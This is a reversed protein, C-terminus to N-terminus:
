APALQVATRARIDRSSAGVCLELEGPEAVWNQAAVDWHAFARPGLTFSVRRSEGPALAVKAFARLEQEPRIVASRPRRVYVQVVEQGAREGRNAVELTLELSEDARLRERAARLDSYEFRGYSLGHGFAFRPELKRADYWRYGVFLGEGYVSRGGEGPWDLYAPTDEIRKPVTHPLRGSPNRDGFLVDALANGAEQGGYWVQLAAPVNELFELEVPAGTQIVVVTRPNVAAVCAALEAQRGPLALSARDHGETEWEDNMGLVVVAADCAAARSVARELLDHPAVALCGVKLGGAFPRDINAYEVAVDHSRGAELLCSGRKEASGLNFFADGPAQETWNDVVLVGDVFLRSKGASVLSFEHAGTVHPALAGQVRVSFARPEVERAFRDFWVFSGASSERSLVPTGQPEHGNWYEVRLPGTLSDAGLTPLTKHSVCGPEFHIAVADGARKRIGELPSVAYHPRIRASGGGQVVARAANPGIVALSRLAGADLPLVERENQLLVISEGAARRALARHEPLDVAREDARPGDARANTREALRLIRRVADDLLSETVEGARVAAAVKAGLHRAPGPMELDLGANVCAATSHTGYWDSVVAGDFGWEGKLLARLLKPHESAYTGNVRNYASMLAWSGAERVAAEFPVLYLERLVREGVEASISMREFEQDNAVFHKVCAAVNRSQVGRIFAVALRASLQPDESYCEFNRGGLPSRHLNVTPGLLVHAGKTRADEGIAAGVKEVLEPNWTAGLASGCPFLLSTAGEGMHIGRAGSPGDSLVMGPVGLRAIAASHWIDAGATLQAKEDLTLERLLEDIRRPDSM